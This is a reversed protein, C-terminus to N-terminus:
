SKYNSGLTIEAQGFSEVSKSKEYFYKANDLIGQRTYFPTDPALPLSITKGTSGAQYIATILEITKRGAAGDILLTEGGEITALVNDIQGEHGIHVVEPLGDYISQLEMELEADKEPFGNNRSVSATVQWPVSVRAREGQFILQQEEGHHVVSCTVQGLSGNEYKMLAVSLDEVESNDHSVNTMVAQVEVPMGMMWQLMDIHHVAHNITCGGGEKEWTGRWWLDYYSHGRWWFSDVQAHVIKGMRGTELVQKLKMIPTRFRNQAVVSLVTQNARAAAIMADCEELSPAMPKEVLVHIGANLMAVTAPAHEFPPLCISALDVDDALLAKYDDLVTADLAYKEVKETAKDPYIDVMAVIQCRDRFKLYAKIHSEAISGTGIIAVRIM